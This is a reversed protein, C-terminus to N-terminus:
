WWNGINDAWTNPNGDTGSSYIIVPYKIEQPIRDGIDDPRAQPNAIVTDLDVDMVVYFEAGWLDTVVWAGKDQYTGNKGNEAAPIELFKISKPNLIEDKGMLAAIWAGKSRVSVDKQPYPDPLPLKKYELKYSSIAM